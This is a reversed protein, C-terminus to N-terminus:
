LLHTLAPYHTTHTCPHWITQHLKRNTQFVTFAWSRQSILQQATIEWGVCCAWGPWKMVRANCSGEKSKNTNEPGAVYLTIWLKVNMIGVIIWLKVNSLTIVGKLLFILLLLLLYFCSRLSRPLIAALPWLVKIMLSSNLQQPFLSQLSRLARLFRQFTCQITRCSM